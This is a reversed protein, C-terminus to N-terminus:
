KRFLNAVPNGGRPTDGEVQGSQGNVLLRYMEGRYTYSATWVPLLLLKYSLVALGTRNIRLASAAEGTDMEIQENSHKVIRERAQLSADSMSVSYVEAPWAALVDEAYPVAEKTDYSLKSLTETPLSSTAPVLVDDLVAPVSDTSYVKGNKDFQKGVMNAASRAAIDYNGTFVGLAIGGVNAANDFDDFRVGGIDPSIYGSWEVEGEIDFTWYPLYIPTPPQMAALGALDDPVGIRRAQENLWDRARAIAAQADLIFPVVGDPERLDAADPGSIRMSYPSGCYACIASQRSPAFTMTAGCGQCELVRDQPLAWRHGKETHIAAVWDQESVGAEGGLGQPTTSEVAQGQADLQIGCFQCRLMGVAPDYLVSAGCKPCKFRRAGQPDADPRGAVPMGPQLPSARLEQPKIRGDLIAMERRADPHTPRMALVNELCERKRKPDDTIRSLWYWAEMQQDQDADTLLVWELYHEAEPRDCPDGSQAAALGRSLLEAANGRGFSM